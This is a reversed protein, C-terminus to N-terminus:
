VDVWSVWGGEYPRATISTVDSGDNRSSGRGAVLSIHQGKKGSPPTPLNSTTATADSLYKAGGTPKDLRLWLYGNAFTTFYWEGGDSTDDATRLTYTTGDASLTGLSRTSDPNGPTVATYIELLPVAIQRSPGRVGYMVEETSMCLAFLFEMLRWDTDSYSAVSDGLSGNVGYDLLAYPRTLANSAAPRCYAHCVLAHKMIEEVGRSGINSQVDYGGAGDYVIGFRTNANEVVRFDGFAHYWSFSSLTGENYTYDRGGNSGTVWARGGLNDNAYAEFAAVMDVFGNRYTLPSDNALGDVNYDPWGSLDPGGQGVVPTPFDNEIDAGDYYTGDIVAILNDNTSYAEFYRNTFASVFTEGGVTPCTDSLNTMVTDGQDSTPTGYLQTGTAPDTLVWEAEANYQEIADRQISRHGATTSGVPYSWMPIMYQILKCDPYLNRNAAIWGVTEDILSAGPDFGQFVLLDTGYTREAVTSLINQRNSIWYGGAAWPWGAPWAGSPTADPTLLQLTTTSFNGSSDTAKLTLALPAAAIDAANPTGSLVGTTPDISLGTGAPLGNSISFTLQDGADADSFNGSVDLSVAGQEATSQDAIPTDLVPSAM